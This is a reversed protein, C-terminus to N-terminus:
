ALLREVALAEDELCVCLVSIPPPSLKPDDSVSRLKVNVRNPYLCPVLPDPRPTSSPLSWLRIVRPDALLSTPFGTRPCCRTASQLSAVAAGILSPSGFVSFTEVIFRSAADEHEPAVRLGVPIFSSPVGPASADSSLTLLSSDSGVESIM